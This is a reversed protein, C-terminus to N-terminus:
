RHRDPLFVLIILGIISLLGLLGWWPSHGKGKAYCFCGYIFVVLGVLSLAFGHLALADSQAALVRGAIQLVIGLGAGINTKTKYEALM